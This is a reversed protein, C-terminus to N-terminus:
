REIVAMVWGVAGIRQGTFSWKPELSPPPLPMEFGRWRKRSECCWPLPPGEGTKTMLFEGVANLDLIATTAEQLVGKVPGLTTM